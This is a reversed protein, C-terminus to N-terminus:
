CQEEEETTKSRAEVAEEVATTTWASLSSLHGVLSRLWILFRFRSLSLSEGM